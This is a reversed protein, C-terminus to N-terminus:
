SIVEIEYEKFRKDNTIIPINHLKATAIIFRDCPDKHISPLTNAMICIPLDLPIISLDHHQVITDFWEEANVPLELKGQKAKLSTEFGSIASLYVFSSQKITNLADKSLKASGNALWLLACTDLLM